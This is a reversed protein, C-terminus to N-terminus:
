LIGKHKTDKLTTKQLYLTKIKTKTRNHNQKM